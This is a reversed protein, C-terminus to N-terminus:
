LMQNEQIVKTGNNDSEPDPVETNTFSKDILKEIKSVDIGVDKM